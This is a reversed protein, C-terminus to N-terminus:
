PAPGSRRRSWGAPGPRPAPPPPRAPPARPRRGRARGASSPFASRVTVIASQPNRIEVAIRLGFDAISGNRSEALECDAIRFECDLLSLEHRLPVHRPSGPRPACGRRSTGPRAPRRAPGGAPPPRRPRPPGGRRGRDRPPPRPSGPSRGAPRARGPAPAGPPSRDGPQRLLHLAHGQVLDAARPELGDHQRGLADRHAVGVDDDGAAHLVHGLRGVVQEAGAAAVAHAM